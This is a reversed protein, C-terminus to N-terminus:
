KSVMKKRLEDTISDEFTTQIKEHFKDMKSQLNKSELLGEYYADFDLVFIKKKIEAPFDPNNMGYRFRFIIGNYKLILTQFARLIVDEEKPIKLSSLLNKNLYKEWKTPEAEDIDINNIYRLGFKSIVIEDFEETLIIALKSFSEKLKEYKNYKRVDLAFHTMDLELRNFKNEDNFIWIKKVIEEKVKSVNKQSVKFVTEVSNLPPDKIPFLKLANQDFRKPIKKNLDEIPSAFDIRAIVRTLYTNKYTKEEM